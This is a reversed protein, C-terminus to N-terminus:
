IAIVNNLGFVDYGIRAIVDEVCNMGRGNVDEFGEFIASLAEHSAASQKCYGYGGAKGNASAYIRSPEIKNDLEGHVWLDCHVVSASSSRGMYLRLDLFRAITGDNRVGLGHIKKILEMKEHNTKLESQANKITIKSM